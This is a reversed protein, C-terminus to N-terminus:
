LIKKLRSKSTFHLNVLDIGIWLFIGAEDHKSFRGNALLAATMKNWLEPIKIEPFQQQIKVGAEILHPMSVESNNALLKLVLSQISLDEIFSTLSDCCKVFRFNPCLIGNLFTLQAIERLDNTTDIFEFARGDEEVVVIGNRLFIGSADILYNAAFKKM